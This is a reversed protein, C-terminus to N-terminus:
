GRSEELVALLSPSAPPLNLVEDWFEDESAYLGSAPPPPAGGGDNSIRWLPKGHDTIRVEHGAAILNKVKLPHRLLERLPLTKAPQADAPVVAEKVTRRASRPSTVPRPM